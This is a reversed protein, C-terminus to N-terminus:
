QVGSGDSRCQRGTGQAWVGRVKPHIYKDSNYGSRAEAAGTTMTEEPKSRVLAGTIEELDILCETHQM